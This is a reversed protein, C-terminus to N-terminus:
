PLYVRESYQHSYLNARELSGGGGEVKRGCLHRGEGKRTIGGFPFSHERQALARGEKMAEGLM